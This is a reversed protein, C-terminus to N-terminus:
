CKIITNTKVMKNPIGASMVPWVLGVLEPFVERDFCKNNRKHQQTVSYTTGFLTMAYVEALTM